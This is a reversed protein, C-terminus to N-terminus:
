RSKRKRKRTDESNNHSTEQSTMSSRISSLLEEILGSLRAVESELAEVKRLAAGKERVTRLPEGEGTVLWKDEVDPYAALIRAVFKDVKYKGQRLGTVTQQHMGAKDAFAKANGGELVAVLYDIRQADTM